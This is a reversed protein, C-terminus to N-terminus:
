RPIEMEGLAGAGSEETRHFVCELESASLSVPAWSPIDGSNPKSDYITVNEIMLADFFLHALANALHVKAKSIKTGDNQEDCQCNPRGFPIDNFVYTARIKPRPGCTREQVQGVLM